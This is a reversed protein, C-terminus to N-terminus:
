IGDRDRRGPCSVIKEMAAAELVEPSLIEYASKLALHTLRCTM